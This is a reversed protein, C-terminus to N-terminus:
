SVVDPKGRADKKATGDSIFMAWDSMMRRRKEIMDGRRYSAEVANSIKHALAV